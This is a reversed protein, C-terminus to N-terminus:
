KATGYQNKEKKNNSWSHLIETAKFFNLHFKCFNFKMKIVKM